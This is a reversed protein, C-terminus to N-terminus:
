IALFLVLFILGGPRAFLEEHGGGMALLWLMMNESTGKMDAFMPMQTGFLVHGALIFGGVLVVFPLMFWGIDNMARTISVYTKSLEDVLVMYELTRIVSLLLVLSM